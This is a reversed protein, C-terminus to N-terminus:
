KNKKAGFNEYFALTVTKSDLDHSFKEIDGNLDYKAFGYGEYKKIILSPTIKKSLEPTKMLTLYIIGKQTQVVLEKDSYAVHYSDTENLFHDIGQVVFLKAKDNNKDNILLIAEHDKGQKLYGNGELYTINNKLAFSKLDFKSQAQFSFSGSLFFTSLFLYCIVLTKM